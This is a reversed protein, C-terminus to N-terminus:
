HIYVLLFNTIPFRFSIDPLLVIFYALISEPDIACRVHFNFNQSGPGSRWVLARLTISSTMPIFRLSGPNPLFSFTYYENYNLIYGSVVM